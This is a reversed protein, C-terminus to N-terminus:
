RWILKQIYFKYVNANQSHLITFLDYVGSFIICVAM